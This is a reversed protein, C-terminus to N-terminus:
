EVCGHGRCFRDDRLLERGLGRNRGNLRLGGFVRRLGHCLRDRLGGQEHVLEDGLLGNRLRGRLSLLLGSQRLRHALEHGDLARDRGARVERGCRRLGYRFRGARLVHRLRCRLGDGRDCLGDSRHGGLRLRDRGGLGSGRDGDLGHGGFGRCGLRDRRLPGRGSRDGDLGDAPALGDRALGHGGLRHGHGLRDGHGRLGHGDLGGHGSRGRDRPGAPRRPASGPSWATATGTGCAAGSSCATVTGSGAESAGAATAASGTWAGSGTSTGCCSCGRGGFRGLFRSHGSGRGLRGFGRGGGVLWEFHDARRLRGGYRFGGRLGLRLRGGLGLLEGLDELGGLLRGGGGAVVVGLALGHEPDHALAAVDAVAEAAVGDRVLHQQADQLRRVGRGADPVRLGPVEDDDPGGLGPAVMCSSAWRWRSAYALDSGLPRALCNLSSFISAMRSVGTFM